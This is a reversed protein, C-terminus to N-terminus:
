ARTSSPDFGIWKKMGEKRAFLYYYANAPNFLIKSSPTLSRQALNDRGALCNLPSLNASVTSNQGSKRDDKVVPKTPARALRTTTAKAGPFLNEVDLVNEVLTTTNVAM